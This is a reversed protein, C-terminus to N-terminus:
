LKKTLSHSYAEAKVKATTAKAVTQKQLKTQAYGNNQITLMEQEIMQQSQYEAVIRREMETYLKNKYYRPMAIKKGGEIPVYMRNKLDEKHWKAMDVSLYSAGLGKSMTAKEKTRDDNKHAPISGRKLMYKLCYGISAGTVSGYHVEGYWWAPQIKEIASGFLLVHYHPRRTKAGYEGVAFYSIKTDSSHDKRLRKFFLQLHTNRSEHVSLEPSDLSMFGNKTIPVHKTDYTLTIFHSPMVQIKEHEM